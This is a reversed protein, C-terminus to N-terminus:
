QQTISKGAIRAIENRSGSILFRGSELFDGMIFALLALGIIVAILIGARNRITEIIAM